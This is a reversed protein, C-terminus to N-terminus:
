DNLLCSRNLNVIKRTRQWFEILYQSLCSSPTFSEVQVYLSSWRTNGERIIPHETYLGLNRRGLDVNEQIKTFNNYLTLLSGNFREDMHQFSSERDTRKQGSCLSKSNYILLLTRPSRRTVFIRTGWTQPSVEKQKVFDPSDM